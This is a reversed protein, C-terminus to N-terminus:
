IADYCACYVKFMLIFLRQFFCLLFEHFITSSKGKVRDPGVKGRSTKKLAALSERQADTKMAGEDVEEKM